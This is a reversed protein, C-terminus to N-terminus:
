KRWHRRVGQLTLFYLWGSFLWYYVGQAWGYLHPLTSTSGMDLLEIAAIFPNLQYIARWNFLLTLWDWLAARLSGKREMEWTLSEMRGPSDIMALAFLLQVLIPLFLLLFVQISYLLSATVISNRLRLSLWMGLSVLLVGWGTLLWIAALVNRFPAPSYEMSWASLLPPILLAVLVFVGLVRSFWKGFVIESATLRTIALSEWTAKEYETSFLSYSSLPVLLCMLFLGLLFVAAPVLSYTFIQSLLYLYTIAFFVGGVLMLTRQKRWRNRSQGVLHYWFVPNEQQQRM